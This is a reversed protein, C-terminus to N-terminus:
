TATFFVSHWGTAGDPVVPVREPTQTYGSRDTARCEITHGGPSLDLETRWMRWTDINVPDALQADKWPGGDARVEVRAIGVTQAWAIGAVTVRGAPVKGFGLPTDIRSQTKIPAREAWGREEWYTRKDWTTLELDTLWKTASVYGYLGPTVMRVPFGHEAPLPTGNMSVALLAGRDPDLLADVPTGATFGDVSTSFVQEAGPRVGAELLVDRLPVGIFNATSIYPGGVPNSVCTMTITKEVLRRRMLDDFTWNLEKEVMGHVRLHWDETGVQPVSLATDIRYFDPNPTIFPPTGSKTFDAGPPITPARRAPVLPGVAQRSARVGKRDALVQGGFGAAGAAVAVTASSMLFRRRGTSGSDGGAREAHQEDIDGPTAADNEPSRREAPSAARARTARHLFDFAGVGALTALVPAVLGLPGLDQAAAAAMGVLGVLGILVMGPVPGRRSLMGAAVALLLMVLAMGVLLAVKDATGFLDIAMSKVPQPTLDIATNGVALYPSSRPAILGAALHGAALASAAALVGVLAASPLGLRNNRKPTTM